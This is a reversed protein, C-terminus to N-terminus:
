PAATETVSPTGEVASAAASVTEESVAKEEQVNGFVQKLVQAAQEGDQKFDVSVAFETKLYQTISRYIAPQFTNLLLFVVVILGSLVVQFLLFGAGRGSQEEVPPLPNSAYPASTELPLEPVPELKEENEFVEENRNIMCVAERDMEKERCQIREVSLITKGKKHRYRILFILLLKTNM